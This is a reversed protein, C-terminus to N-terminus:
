REPRSTSKAWISSSPIAMEERNSSRLRDLKSRAVKAADVYSGADALNNVHGAERSVDSWTIQAVICRAASLVALVVTGRLTM